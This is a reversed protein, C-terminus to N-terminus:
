GCIIHQYCQWNSELRKITKGIDLVEKPIENENLESVLNYMESENSELNDNFLIESYAWLLLENFIDTLINGYEVRDASSFSVLDGHILNGNVDGILFVIKDFNYTYVHHLLQSRESVNQVNNHIHEFQFTSIVPPIPHNPFRSSQFEMEKQKTTSRTRTKVEGGWCEVENTTTMIVVIFDISDKVYPQNKKEVLGTTYIGLIEKLLPVQIVRGYCDTGKEILDIFSKITKSENRHGIECNIKKSGTLPTQFAKELLTKIGKAKVVEFAISNAAPEKFDFKSLEIWASINNKVSSRDVGYKSVTALLSEKKYLIWKRVKNKESYFLELYKRSCSKVRHQEQLRSSLINFIEKRQSITLNSVISRADSDSHCTDTAVLTKISGM